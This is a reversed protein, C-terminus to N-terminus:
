RFGRILRFLHARVSMWLGDRSKAPREAGAPIEGSKFALRHAHNGLDMKFNEWKGGQLVAAWWEGEVHDSFQWLIHYGDLNTFGEGDGQIIGGTANRIANHVEGLAAWGDGRDVEDFIQIVYITRVKPLYTRLWEAGTTPLCDAIEEQFEAIESEGVSGVEVPCREVICLSDGYGNVVDIMRWNASLTNGEVRYGFRAAAEAVIDAAVPRDEPTLVRIYYGM